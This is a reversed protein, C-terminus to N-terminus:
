GNRLPALNTEAASDILSLLEVDPLAAWEAPLGPHRRRETECQFCLWGNGYAPNVQSLARRNPSPRVDFVTWLTGAADRVERM